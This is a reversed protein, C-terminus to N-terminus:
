SFSRAQSALALGFSQARGEELGTELLQNKIARSLGKVQSSTEDLVSGAKAADRVEEIARGVGTISEDL